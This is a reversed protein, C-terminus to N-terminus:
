LPHFTQTMLTTSGCPAALIFSDPLASAWLFFCLFVFAGLPVMLLWSARPSCLIAVFLWSAGLAASFLWSSYRAALANRMEAVVVPLRPFLPLLFLLLLFFHVSKCNFCTSNHSNRVASTM